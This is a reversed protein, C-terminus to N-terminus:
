GASLRRGQSVSWLARIMPEEVTTEVVSRPSRRAFALGFVISVAMLGITPVAALPNAAAASVFFRWMVADFRPDAELQAQEETPVPKRDLLTDVLMSLVALPMILGIRFSMSAGIILNIEDRQGDTWKTDDLMEESLLVMSERLPQVVYSLAVMLVVYGILMLAIPGTLIEVALMNSM